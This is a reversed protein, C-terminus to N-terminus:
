ELFWGGSRFLINGTTLLKIRHHARTFHYSIFNLPIGAHHHSHNLFYEFMKPDNSGGLAIGIFKM